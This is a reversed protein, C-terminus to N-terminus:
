KAASIKSKKTKLSPKVKSIFEFEKLSSQDWVKSIKLSLVFVILNRGGLEEILKMLRFFM